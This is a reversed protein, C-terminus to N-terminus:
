LLQEFFGTMGYVTRGEQLQRTPSSNLLCSASPTKYHYSKVPLIQKKESGVPEGGAAVLLFMGTHRSSVLESQLQPIFVLEASEMVVEGHKNM